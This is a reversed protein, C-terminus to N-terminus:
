VALRRGGDETRRAGAESQQSRIKPKQNRAQFKAGGGEPVCLVDPHQGFLVWKRRCAADRGPRCLTRPGLLKHLQKLAQSQTARDFYILLNRCFIFDYAARDAFFKEELLNGRHFEVCDCIERRLAYGNETESFHRARFDLAKGRFSNKGYVACRARELARASLDVADITFRNRPLGADILTMAVSFAEEGTSCPVSLVRLIKAPNHPLWETRVLKAFTVFAERDRFFWTEAVVVSEVLEDWEDRSSEILARYEDTRTLGLSKMRLRISREILSSGVSASDLGIHRRLLTEILKM